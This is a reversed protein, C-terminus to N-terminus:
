KQYFIENCDTCITHTFEADTHTEVYAELPWWRGNDDRIRKCGSCIPLLGILIKNERLLRENEAVLKGLRTITDEKRQEAKKRATIDKTVGVIQLDNESSRILRAKIEVWYFRGKKHILELEVTRVRKESSDFKRIEESLVKFVTKFTEPSMTKQVSKGIYEEPGYGSIDRVSDSIYEFTLTNANVTWIVDVLNNSLVRYITELEIAKNKPSKM